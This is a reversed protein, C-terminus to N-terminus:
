LKASIGVHRALNIGEVEALLLSRAEAAVGRGQAVTLGECEPAIELTVDVAMEGSPVYRVSVASVAAVAPLRRLVSEVRAELQLRPQHQELPRATADLLPCMTQTRVLVESLTPNNKMISARVQAGVHQAASATTMPGVMVCLDAMLTSSSMWRCRAGQVGLVGDVGDAVAVIQKTAEIDATDSLRLLADFIIQGGMWAVLAAVGVGCLPDLIRWGCLAGGIGVIAVVSSLADSRHHWANALIVSSGMKLGVRRTVRYLLEKSIVSAAAAYLAVRKPTGLAPSRMASLAAAGFSGAALLLLWGIALCGITEFRGHGYPHDADPPLAGLRLAVLTLADSLLDSFSHAADCMMASSHGYYGALAKGFSLLLNVVAGILTIQAGEAYDRALARRSPTKAHRRFAQWLDDHQSKLRMWGELLGGGTGDTGDHSHTHTAAAGGHAYVALPRRLAVRPRVAPSAVLAGCLPLWLALLAMVVVSRRIAPPPQTPTNICRVGMKYHM